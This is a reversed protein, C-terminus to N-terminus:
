PPQSSGDSFDSGPNLLLHLAEEVLLIRLRKKPVPDDGLPVAPRHKEDFRFESSVADTAPQQTDYVQGSAFDIDALLTRISVSSTDTYVGDFDGQGIQMYLRQEGAGIPILGPFSDRTAHGM